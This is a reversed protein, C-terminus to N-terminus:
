AYWKRIRNYEAVVDDYGLATLLDCLVEDANVHAMESDWNEQEEILEAIAKDRLTPDIVTTM